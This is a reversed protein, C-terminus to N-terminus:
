DLEWEIEPICMETKDARRLRSRRLSRNGVPKGVLVRYASKKEWM